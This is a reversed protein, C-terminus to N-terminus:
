VMLAPEWRYCRVPLPNGQVVLAAEYGETHMVELLSWGPVNAEIKVSRDNAPVIEVEDLTGSLGTAKAKLFAEKSTWCKFFAARRLSPPLEFLAAVERATFFRRAVEDFAFDRKIFEVDAGVARGRAIAVLALDHSHSLNFELGSDGPLALRPKGHAGAVFHIENEAVRLYSALLSRLGAHAATYLRRDKDFKFQAARHREDASLRATLKEDASDHGLTRIMWVHAEDDNLDIDDPPLLWTKAAAM